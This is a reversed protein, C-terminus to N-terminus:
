AGIRLARCRGSRPCRAAPAAAVVGFLEDLRNNLRGVDYQWRADSLELANRRRVPRIEPPLADPNPMRAGSVLVPILTVDSRKLAIELELRVFDEPDTIRVEGATKTM